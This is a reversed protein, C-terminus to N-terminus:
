YLHRHFRLFSSVDNLVQVSARLGLCEDIISEPSPVTSSLRVTRRSPVMAKRLVAGAIRHSTRLMRENINSHLKISYEVVEQAFEHKM